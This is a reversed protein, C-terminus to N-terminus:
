TALSCLQLAEGSLLVQEGSWEWRSRESMSSGRQVALREEASILYDYLWGTDLFYSIISPEPAGLLDLLILHEILSIETTASLLRRKSNPRVYTESWLNALHRISEHAIM